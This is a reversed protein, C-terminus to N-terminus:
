EDLDAMATGATLAAESPWRHEVTTIADYGHVELHSQVPHKRRRRQGTVGIGVAFGADALAHEVAAVIDLRAAGSATVQRPQLRARQIEVLGFLAQEDTMREVWRGLRAAGKTGVLGAGVAGLVRRLEAEGPPGDM